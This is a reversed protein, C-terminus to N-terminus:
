YGPNEILKPNDALRNLGLAYYYNREPHLRIGGVDGDAMEMTYTNNNANYRYHLRHRRVNDLEEVAIRWRRLDWFVHDEFALECRREQRIKNETIDINSLSPMGARKRIENMVNVMDGNPDGLYYASEVYNLYIEGLRYVIYDTSSRSADPTSPNTRKRILLGTALSGTLKSPGNKPWGSKSGAMSRHFFVTGGKFSSGPYFISARMRPDRQEFFINPDIPTSDDFISRDMKGSKGDIFDFQELTELYVTYNSSWNFGFGAPQALADWQHSKGAEYDYKESFIIETNGNEDIFLNNFNEVPDSKENYLAFIGSQIIERSADLSKKYYLQAEESPFGLLGNLQQNGFNAVSAAYLMARSKLSLAVWKTIRGEDGSQSPLLNSIEDMENSIFDYIEKESNREKYIEDYTGQVPIVETVLPVGGFRKVMEFYAHSRIFRAESVRTDIFSQSLNESQPLKTIMQNCERILSYDYYDLVKGILGNENYDVDLVQTYPTQWSVGYNRSEGGFSSILGMNLNGNGSKIHFQARDYLDFLFADALTPNDFVMEDSIIDNRTLDFPDYCGTLLIFILSILKNSKNM